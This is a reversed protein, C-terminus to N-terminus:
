HRWASLCLGAVGGEQFAQDAKGVRYVLMIAGSYTKGKEPNITGKVKVIATGANKEADFVAEAKGLLPTVRKGDYNFKDGYGGILLPSRAKLKWLPAHVGEFGIVEADSAAGKVDAKSVAPFILSSSVLLSVLFLLIKKM